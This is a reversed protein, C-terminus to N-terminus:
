QASSVSYLLVNNGNKFRNVPRISVLEPYSCRAAFLRLDRQGDDSKWYLGICLGGGIIWGSILQVEHWRGTETEIAWSGSRRAVIRVVPPPSFPNLRHLARWLSGASLGCRSNGVPYIELNHLFGNSWM